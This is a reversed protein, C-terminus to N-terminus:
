QFKGANDNGLPVTLRVCTGKKTRSVRLGGGIERARRQMNNLGRGHIFKESIGCGNDDSDIILLQEALSVKIQISSANAHKLSNTFAEQLIRIIQIVTRPNAPPLSGYPYSFHLKVAIGPAKKMCRLRFNTLAEELNSDPDNLADIIAYLEDMCDALLREADGISLQGDSMQLRATIIQAGLGDHLDRLLIQREQRAAILSLQLANTTDILLGLEDKHNYIVPEYTACTNNAVAELKGILQTLESLPKLLNREFIWKFLLWM